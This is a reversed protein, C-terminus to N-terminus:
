NIPAEIKINPNYEYAVVERYNESRPEFAGTIIETRLFQGQQNYWKMSDNFLLGKEGNRIELKRLKRASQGGVFDSEETYQVCSSYGVGGASGSGSGGIKKSTWAGNNTRTYEMEGIQITEYSTEEGGKKEIRVYRYRDPLLDESITEVSSVVVGNEINETKRVIRTSVDRMLRYAESDAKYYDSYSIQKVQTFGTSAITLVFVATLLYNKM